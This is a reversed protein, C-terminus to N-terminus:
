KKLKPKIKLQKIKEKASVENVKMKLKSSQIMEKEKLATLKKVSNVKVDSLDNEIEVKTKLGKIELNSKSKANEIEMKKIQLELAKLELQKDALKLKTASSENNIKEQSRNQTNIQELKQREIYQKAKQEAQKLEKESAMKKKELDKKNYESIQHNVLQQQAITNQSALQNEKLSLDRQAILKDTLDVEPNFSSENSIGQLTAKQLETNSKTDIEYKKLDRDAQKDQQQAQLMEKEHKNKAEEQAQAQKQQEAEAQELKKQIDTLNDLKILEILKSIPISSQNNKLILQEAMEKKRKMEATNNIYVGLDKLLLDMKTIQLFAKGLDSTTYSMVISEEEGKSAVHQSIDLMMQLKRRRYNSYSEFYIETIAYSNSVAANTATATESAQIQGQRQPSIGLQLFGQQEILMALNILRSARESEDLDLVKGSYQMSQAAQTNGPSDDIIAFGLNSAMTIFKEQSEEGGWDKNHPLLSAGILAFKGNSKQLVQYAQNYLSNALIQYPKLLDVVSKSAGNMNNFVQGIVPLRSKHILKPNNGKFQFECPRIDIYLANRDEPTINSDYNIAIKVGQWTQTIWTWCITNPLNTDKFSEKVEKVGFDKPKFFEDVIEVTIEGTEPNQVILKGIKRQSKWYAQTVQVLDSQVNSYNSGDLTQVSGFMSSTGNNEMGLGIGQGVATSLTDWDRYGSFPYMTANFFEGFADGSKAGKLYEPYLSEIQEETMKWGLTDIVRAKSMYLIRGIYSGEELNELEASNQHFVNVPNWVEQSYGDPTLFFHTFCRSVVLKHYFEDNDLKKLNFQQIANSLVAQGWSEAASRYDYRMFKEISDPTMEQYKQEIEQKYKGAEEETNFDSKEPDIGQQLLKKTIEQKIASQIYGQTLETKLRIKENDSESDTASVQIIDPRSIHEGLLLDVAKTTIDYHKLYHPLKMEQYVASAVDSVDFSDVYDEVNFRGQMIQYNKQLERNNKFSYRGISELADMTDKMWKTNGYKDVDDEFKVKYNVQQRPLSSNVPRNLLM